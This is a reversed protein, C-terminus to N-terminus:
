KLTDSMVTLLEGNIDNVYEWYMIGALDKEKIYEAKAKISETDDYSIFTQGDYLYPAKAIDDWYRTFGNKNVFYATLKSYPISAVWTGKDTTMNGEADTVFPQFLGDGNPGAEVNRYEKGYTPVGVILKDAPVGHALFRDVTEAVSLGWDQPEAPNRYLGASHFASAEWNGRMDYTMLNVNNILPVLKDLEVADFFWGSVNAAFSLEKDNGLKERLLKFLATFNEKDEPRSKIVGWAGNVPYEWDIDIGDLNHEKVYKVVSDVFIERNAANAAMDSFGDAEWGGVAVIFKLHPYKKQLQAVKAWTEDIIMKESVIDPMAYQGGVTHIRMETNSIEFDNDIRAFSLYVHTLKDGQIDEVKWARSGWCPLYTIVKKQGEVAAPEAAFIPTVSLVMILSLLLAFLRKM